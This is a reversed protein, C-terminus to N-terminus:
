VGGPGSPDFVEPDDPVTWNGTFTPTIGALGRLRHYLDADITGNPQNPVEALAGADYPFAHWESGDASVEVIGPEAFVFFPAGDSTPLPLQFFANEFVIFDPGPRDEIVIDDFAIVARGGYGFSAVSFSGQSPSSDGPPGLFIGPLFAAGFLAQPNAAVPKWEALRDGWCDIPYSRETALTVSCSLALGLFGIYGSRAIGTRRTM